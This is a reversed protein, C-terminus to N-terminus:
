RAAPEIASRRQWRPARRARTRNADFSVAAREGPRRPGSKAEAQSSATEELRRPAISTRRRGEQAAHGVGNRRRRRRAPDVRRYQDHRTGPDRRHPMAAVGARMREAVEAASRADADVLVALFEEGGWRGLMDTERLASHLTSAVSRLVTDGAEHGYRDNISKFHDIDCMVLSVPVKARGARKLELPGREQMARRNDLGTVADTRADRRLELDLAFADRRSAELARGLLMSVAVALLTFVATGIIEFPELSVVVMVVALAVLAVVNTVLLDRMDIAVYPGTLIMAVVGAVGFGYGRDLMTAAVVATVVAIVLRAKAMLSMWRAKGPLKQFLGTAVVAAAGLLRVRLAAQWHVPDAYVDWAAFVLLLIAISWFTNRNVAALGAIRSERFQAEVDAM